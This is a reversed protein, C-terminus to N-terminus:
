FTMDLGAMFSTGPMPYLPQYAYSENLLNECAISLRVAPKRSNQTVDFSIKGNIVTYSDLRQPPPIPFRTNGQYRKGMHELDCNMYFRQLLIGSIGGTFTVEPANPINDPELSMVNMGAYLEWNRHPATRISAEFGKITFAGVNQYRPPPPPPPIFRLLNDGRDYYGTVGIELAPHLHYSIGTEIHDITEAELDKWQDGRNWYARYQVVTYVGPYNFSHAYSTHWRINESNILVGAQYGTQSTFYKSHNYRVGASPTITVINRVRIAHQLAAYPATNTFEMRDLQQKSGTVTHHLVEGGYGDLDLGATVTGDTWFSASQQIRIGWNSYQTETTFTSGSVNDWQQWDGTGTDRFLKVYGKGYNWKNALTVDFTWDDTRYTGAPPPAATEPGPDRAWNDTRSATVSVDIAPSFAYGLRGFYNQLAGDANERHGDSGKAGATFYYDFASFKGGHEFTSHYTQFSGVGGKLRTETGPLTRRYTILNVAGFAMNGYLVPQPAKYVEISQVNDISFVDMLPHTWVGIFKPKGDVLIQINGGPRANGMGRIYVAGGQAGGYSGIRNYRSIVVGPIRRVATQVDLADLNEIQQRTVISLQGTLPRVIDAELVPRATVIVTDAEYSRFNSEQASLLCSQFLLLLCLFVGSLRLSQDAM